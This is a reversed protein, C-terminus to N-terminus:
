GQQTFTSEVVRTDSKGGLHNVAKASTQITVIFSDGPMLATAAPIELGLNLTDALISSASVTDGPNKKPSTSNFRPSSLLGPGSQSCLGSSADCSATVKNVWIELSQIGSESDKASAVLNLPGTRGQLMHSQNSGSTTVSITQAGPVTESVQLTVEPPSNDNQPITIGGGGGDGDCSAALLALVAAVSAARLWRWAINM